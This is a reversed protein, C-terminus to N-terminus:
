AILGKCIMVRENQSLLYTQMKNWGDVLSFKEVKSIAFWSYKDSMMGSADATELVSRITDLSGVVFINKM